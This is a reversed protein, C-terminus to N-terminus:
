AAATETMDLVRSALDELTPIANGYKKRITIREGREPVEVAKALEASQEIERPFLSLDEGMSDALEKLRARWREHEPIAQVRNLVAYARGRFLGERRLRRIVRAVFAELGMASLYEPTVPALVTRTARVAAETLASIGPPCDILIVDYAPELEALKDELYRALQHEASSQNQTMRGLRYLIDREVTQLEPISGILHIRGQSDVFSADKQVLDRARVAREEDASKRRGFIPFTRGPTEPMAESVEAGDDLAGYFAKFLRCTHRERALIDRFGDEGALAFTCSAQADLDIVLVRKKAMVALAEALAVSITTKGVGGKMNVVSIVHAGAM